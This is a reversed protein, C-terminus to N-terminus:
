VTHRRGPMAQLDVQKLGLRNLGQQVPIHCSGEVRSVIVFEPLRVEFDEPSGKAELTTGVVGVEQM